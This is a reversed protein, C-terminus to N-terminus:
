FEVKVNEKEEDAAAFFEAPTFKMIGAILVNPFVQIKTNYEQVTANYYRRSKQIETELDSLQTQLQLFSSDAKLNPYNEAVAFLSKLTSTMENNIASMEAMSGSAGQMKARLETVKTLVGEEHKAYGKVTNVLNPIMDFRKKLLTEVDATAEKVLMRQQVLVNYLSIAWGVIAVAILAIGFLVPITM